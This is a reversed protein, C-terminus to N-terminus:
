IMFHGYTASLYSLDVLNCIINKDQIERLESDVLFWTYLKHVFAFVRSYHRTERLIQYHLHRSDFGRGFM